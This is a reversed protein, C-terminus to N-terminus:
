AKRIRRSALLGAGAVMALLSAPEPVPNTGGGSTGPGFLHTLFVGSDLVRDGADGVVFYLTHDGASVDFNTRLVPTFGDYQLEEIGAADGAGIRDSLGYGNTPDFTDPRNDITLYQNDVTIAQGLPDLALTTTGEDLFVFFSDNFPSNTYYWFEESGYAFDFSLSMDSDVHFQVTLTAVDMLDISNVGDFNTFTKVAGSHDTTIADDVNPGAASAALGSTLVLGSSITSFPLYTLGSYTGASGSAGEYTVNTVTLGAVPSGLAANLLTDADDSTTISIAPGSSALCIGLSAVGIRLWNSHM